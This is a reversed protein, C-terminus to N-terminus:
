SPPSQPVAEMLKEHLIEPTRKEDWKVTYWDPNNRFRRVVTGRQVKIRARDFQQHYRESPRVRQGKMFM